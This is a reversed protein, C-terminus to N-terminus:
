SWFLKGIAASILLCLVFVIYDAIGFRKALQKVDEDADM